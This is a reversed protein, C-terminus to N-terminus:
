ANSRGKSVYPRFGIRKSTSNDFSTNLELECYKVLDAQFIYRKRGDRGAAMAATNRIILAIQGGTLRYYKALKEIDVDKALPLTQPLHLKWLKVREPYEPFPFKIKINFRRSFAEDFNEMLNTTAILIGHYNELAELFLNQLQNYMRDVGSKAIGRRTFFQDAENLLLVPPEAIETNIREMKKFLGQLNQQSEGVWCSLIRSIDTTVIDRGLQQAVFRAAHTKGTGPAGHFLMLLSNQFKGSSGDNVPKLVGWESLTATRNGLYQTIGGRIVEILEGKLVLSEFKSEPKIVTLLEDKGIISEIREEDTKMESETLRSLVEPAIEMSDTSRRFVARDSFGILGKGYLKGDKRFYRRYKFKSIRGHAIVGTLEDIDCPSGGLGEHLLYILAVQECFDLKHEEVIEHFPFRAPTLRTREEIKERMRDLKCLEDNRGSSGYNSSDSSLNYEKRAFVYEFWDGLFDENDAYPEINDDEIDQADGLIFKTLRESLSFDCKILKARGGEKLLVPDGMRRSGMFGEEPELLKLDVLRGIRDIIRISDDPRKGVNEMLDTASMGGLGKILNSTLLAIIVIDERSLGFRRFNNRVLDCSDNWKPAFGPDEWSKDGWSEGCAAWKLDHADKNEVNEVSEAIELLLNALNENVM